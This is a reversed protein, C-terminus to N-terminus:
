ADEGDEACGGDAGAEDAAFFEAHELLEEFADAVAGDGCLEEDDSGSCAVVEGDGVGGLVGFGVESVDSEGDCALVDLSCEGFDGHEGALVGCEADAAGDGRADGAAVQAGDEM